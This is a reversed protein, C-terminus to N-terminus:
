SLPHGSPLPCKQEFCVHCSFIPTLGLEWNQTPHPHKTDTRALIHPHPPTVFDNVGSTELFDFPGRANVETETM